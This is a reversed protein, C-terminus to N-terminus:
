KETEILLRVRDSFFHLNEPTYVAITVEKTYNEDNVHFHEGIVPDIQQLKCLLEHAEFPTLMLLVSKLPQGTTEDLIRM